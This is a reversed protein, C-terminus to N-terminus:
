LIAETRPTRNSVIEDSEMRRSYFNAKTVIDIAIEIESGLRIRLLLCQCGELDRISYARRPELSNIGNEKGIGFQM